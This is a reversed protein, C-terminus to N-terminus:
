EEDQDTEASEAKEAELQAAFADAITAHEGDGEEDIYAGRMGTGSPVLNGIIVNEKLGELPDIKGKIAADTM